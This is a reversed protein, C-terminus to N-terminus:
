KEISFYQDVGIIGQTACKIHDVEYEDNLASNEMIIMKVEGIVFMTGNHIIPIVEKLALGFKVFCEKVFPAHFSNIYEPTLDCSMFESVEKPYKESTNHAKQLIGYHVNNITYYGTSEINSITHSFESKPRHMFGILPPHSGVHIVSSFIALNEQGDADKTGILNVSKVGPLSNILNVKHAKDLNEINIENLIIM